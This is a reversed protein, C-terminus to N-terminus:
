ILLLKYSLILLFSSYSDKTFLTSSYQKSHHICVPKTILLQKLLNRHGQHSAAGIASGFYGGQANVDAGKELLM